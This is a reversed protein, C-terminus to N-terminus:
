VHWRERPVNHPMDAHHKRQDRKLSALCSNHVANHFAVVSGPKLFWTTEVVKFLEWTSDRNLSEENRAVGAMDDGTMQLFRQHHQNYLGIMGSGGYVVKFREWPWVNAAPFESADKHISSFAVGTDSMKFFRNWKLSHLGIEGNGGDVVAFKEWLM